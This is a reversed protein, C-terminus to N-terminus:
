IIKEIKKYSAVIGKILASSLGHHEMENLGAITCGQPTTVKDIAEEPHQNTELLLSAAGLATQSAILQAEEAHFGVETGGQSAARIFRLFFAIGCAGLVTAAQMLKEDIIMAKGMAEFITKVEDLTDDSANTTAICTMSQGIAIATNPMARIVKVQNGMVESIDSTEIGTIVSILTHKKQDVVPKIEELLSNLQKPQVALIILDAKEVAEKNNSLVTIGFAKLPELLQVKRRTIVVDYQLSLSPKMLGKAIAVGLNGGGLIAINKKSM